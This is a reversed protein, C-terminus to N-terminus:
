YNDIINLVKSLNVYQEEEIYEVGLKDIRHAIYERMRGKIKDSVEDFNNQEELSHFSSTCSSRGCIECGM